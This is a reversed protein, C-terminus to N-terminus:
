PVVPIPHRRGAMAAEKYCTPDKGLIDGTTLYAAARCGGFCGRGLHECGQCEGGLDSSSLERLKWLFPADAWIDCIGSALVDGLPFDKFFPCPYARGDAGIYLSDRGASCGLPAEDGLPACACSCDAELLFPMSSEMFFAMRGEHEERKAKMIRAFRLLGDAGLALKEKRAAGRGAPLFPLAKFAACGLSAALDALDGISGVSERTVVASATTRVGMAVFRRISAVASEFSGARGRLSDHAPGIGDLSVQIDHVPLDSLREFASDPIAYGNTAIQVGIGQADLAGVLEFLDDRLFPEGGAMTVSLVGAEALREVLRLAGARDLEGPVPRGAEALCHACALNCAGTLEWIVSRPAAAFPPIRRPPRRLRPPAPRDRRSSNLAGIGELLRAATRARGLAKARGGGFAAASAAAIERLSRTGDFWRLCSAADPDLFAERALRPNYAVLGRDEERLMVFDRLWPAAADSIM